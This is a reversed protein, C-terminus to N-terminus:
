LRSGHILGTMIFAAKKKVANKVAAKRAKKVRAKATRMNPM